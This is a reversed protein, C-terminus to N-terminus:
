DDVLMGNLVGTWDARFPGEAAKPNQSVYTGIKVMM